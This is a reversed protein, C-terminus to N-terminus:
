LMYSNLTCTLISIAVVEFIQACTSYTKSSNYTGQEEIVATRQNAWYNVRAQVVAFRYECHLCTQGYSCWIMLKYESFNIIYISLVLYLTNYKQILM